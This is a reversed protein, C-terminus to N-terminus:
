DMIDENELEEREQSSIWRRLLVEQVTFKELIKPSNPVETLSINFPWVVNCLLIEKGATEALRNLGIYKTWSLSNENQPEYLGAVTVVRVHVIYSAHYFAPGQKYLLFDGGFKIGPKVIWGKSRFYHYVVYKEVFDPQSQLFLKWMELIPLDNGLIGQVQLCGLGYSLFFAEELTLQLSEQIPFEEQELRPNLSLLYDEDGSDCDSDALIIVTQGQKTDVEFNCAKTSDPHEDVKGFMNSEMAVESTRNKERLPEDTESKIHEIMIDDDVELPETKLDNKFGIESNINKSNKSVFGSMEDIKGCHQDGDTSRKRKRISVTEEDRMTSDRCRKAWECRRKWQRNYILPPTDMKWKGFTPMSRSLSGKGFFGMSHLATMDEPNNVIVNNGAYQGTYSRRVGSFIAEETFNKIPIPFPQQCKVPVRRKRRPERLEM